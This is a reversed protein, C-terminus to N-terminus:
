GPLKFILLGLVYLDLRDNFLKEYRRVYSLIHINSYLLSFALPVPIILYCLLNFTM